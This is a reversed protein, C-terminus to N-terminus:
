QNSCKLMRLNRRLVRAVKDDLHQLLNRHFNNTLNHCTTKIIARYSNSHTKMKSTTTMSTLSHNAAVQTNPFEVRFVKSSKLQLVLSDEWLSTERSDAACLVRFNNNNNISLKTRPHAQTLLLKITRITILLSMM